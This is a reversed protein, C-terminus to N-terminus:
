PAHEPASGSFKVAFDAGGHTLDTPTAGGTPPSLSAPYTDPPQAGPPLAGPPLTPGSPAASGSLTLETSSFASNTITGAHGAATTARTNTFDVRNFDTLPLPQCQGQGTCESPAEAIWEASSADPDAFVISKVFTRHSTLNEIRFRVLDGQLGVQATIRDGPRVPIRVRVPAHPVLEYWAYSKANRAASCDAETGIQELKQSNQEFGGLGVWFAAYTNQQQSCDAPPQVWSGIVSRLQRAATVAYGAWNSSQQHRLPHAAAAAPLAMAAALGGIVAALCRWRARHGSTGLRDCILQTVTSM